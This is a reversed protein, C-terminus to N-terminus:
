KKRVQVVVGKSESELCFWPCLCCHRGEQHGCSAATRLPRHEGVKDCRLCGVTWGESQCGGSGSSSGPDGGGDGSCASAGGEDRRRLLLMMLLLALLLVM